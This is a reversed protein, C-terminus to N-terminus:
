VYIKEGPRFGFHTELDLEIILQDVGAQGHHKEIEHLILKASNRNYGSGLEIQQQILERARAIEM